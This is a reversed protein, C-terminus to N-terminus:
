AWRRPQWPTLWGDSQLGRGVHGPIDPVRTGVRGLALGMHTLTLKHKQSPCVVPGPLASPGNVRGKDM